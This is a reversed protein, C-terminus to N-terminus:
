VSASFSVVKLQDFCFNSNVSCWVIDFSLERGEWEDKM